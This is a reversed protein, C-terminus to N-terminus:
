RNSNNTRSFRWRWYMNTFFNYRTTNALGSTADIVNYEIRTSVTIVADTPIVWSTYIIFTKKENDSPLLESKVTTGVKIYYNYSLKFYFNQQYRWIKHYM